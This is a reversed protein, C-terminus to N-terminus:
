YSACWQYPGTHHRNFFSCIWLYELALVTHAHSLHNPSLSLNSKVLRLPKLKNFTSSTESPTPSGAADDLLTSHLNTLAPPRHRNSSRSASTHRSSISSDRSRVQVLFRLNVIIRSTSPSVSSSNRFGFPVRRSSRSERQSALGSASSQRSAARSLPSPSIPSPSQQFSRLSTSPSTLGSVRPSDLATLVPSRASPSENPPPSVITQLTLSKQPVSRADKEPDYSLEPSPTTDLAPTPTSFVPPMEVDPSAMYALISEDDEAVTTEAATLPASSIKDPSTSQRSLSSEEVHDVSLVSSVPTKTLPSLLSADNDPIEFPPSPLDEEADTTQPAPSSANADTGEDVTHSLSLPEAEKDISRLLPHTIAEDDLTHTWPSPTTAEDVTTKAPPFLVAAEDASDDDHLTRDGVATQPTEGLALPIDPARVTSQADFGSRKAQLQKAAHISPSDLDDLPDALTLDGPIDDDPHSLVVPSTPWASTHSPGFKPSLIRAPTGFPSSLISLMSMRKSQPSKPPSLVLPTPGTWEAYGSDISDERQIMELPGLPWHAPPALSIEIPSLLGDSAREAMASAPEQDVPEDFTESATSTALAADITSGSFSEPATYRPEEVTDVTDTEDSSQGHHTSPSHHRQAVQGFIGSAAILARASEFSLVGEEIGGEDDEDPEIAGGLALLLSSLRPSRPPSRIRRVSETPSSFSTNSETPSQTLTIGPVVGFSTTIDSTRVKIKVDHLFSCSDAFLCRGQSYFPCPRATCKFWQM